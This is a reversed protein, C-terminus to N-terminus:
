LPHWTSRPRYRYAVLGGGTACPVAIGSVLLVGGMGLLTLSLAQRSSYEGVCAGPPGPGESRTTFLDGCDRETPVHIPVAAEIVSGVLLAVGLVIIAAAIKM